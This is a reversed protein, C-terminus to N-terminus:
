HFVNLWNTSQYDRFGYIMAAKLEIVRGNSLDHVMILGNKQLNHAAKGRSNSETAMRRPGRTYKRVRLERAGDEKTLFRLEFDKVASSDPATTDSLKALVDAIGISEM